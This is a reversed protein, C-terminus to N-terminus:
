DGFRNPWSIDIGFKMALNRSLVDYVKNYEATNADATSDKDLIAQQIPRWLNEKVTQQTWPLEADQRLVLMQSLGRSNLEEALIECYMHLARNQTLTRKKELKNVTLTIPQGAQLRCLLKLTEDDAAELLGDARKILNLNM